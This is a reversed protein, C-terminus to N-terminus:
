PNMKYFHEIKRYVKRFDVKCTGDSIRVPVETDFAYREPAEEGPSEKEFDFIYVSFGAPDVIWYERVGHRRYLERKRWLDNEPNSPSLVEIAFDPAGRHPGTLTEREPHCHVYVDPQVVTMKDEGLAVDSPAIYAFCEERGHEEICDWLQRAIELAATQHPMAPSAMQYFVGDILEVRLDDPLAFYEEETHGGGTPIRPDRPMGRTQEDSGKGANRLYSAAGSAEQVYDKSERSKPNDRSGPIGSSERYFHKIKDYVRGFDIRCTGKSIRVPVKDQFTYKEPIDDGDNKKEFDFTYVTLERPDVVWYERVGHRCYLERKRWLDNEPNSPSLVEVAFDPAGRFPGPKIDKELDCHVYVDPQVVTKRDEGLAVDSPAIYVFYEKCHKEVCDMLQRAIELAATQHIRAPSAMAYFVGDILEVRLNEPLALYEEETHGGGTPIRPDQKVTKWEDYDTRANQLYEAAGSPEEVLQGREIDGANFYESSDVDPDHNFTQRKEYDKGKFDVQVGGQQETYEIYINIHTNCIISINGNIVNGTLQFTRVTM